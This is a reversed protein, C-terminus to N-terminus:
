IHNVINLIVLPLHRKSLLPSLHLGPILDLLRLQVLTSEASYHQEHIPVAVWHLELSEEFPGPM